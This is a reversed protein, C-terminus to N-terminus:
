PPAEEPPLLRVGQDAAIFGLGEFLESLTTGQAQFKVGTSMHVDFKTGLTDKPEVLIVHSPAVWVNSGPLRRVAGLYESAAVSM